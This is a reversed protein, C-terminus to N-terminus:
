GAVCSLIGVSFDLTATDFAVICGGARGPGRRRDLALFSKVGGEAGCGLLLERLTGGVNDEVRRGGGDIAEVRRAGGLRERPAGEEEAGVADVRGDECRGELFTCSSGPWEGSSQAFRM